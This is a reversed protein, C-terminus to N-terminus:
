LLQFVFVLSNAPHPKDRLVGKSCGFEETHINEVYRLLVASDVFFVVAIDRCTYRNTKKFSFLFADRLSFARRKEHKTHRVYHSFLRAKERRISRQCM